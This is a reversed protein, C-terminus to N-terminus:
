GVLEAQVEEIVDEIWHSAIEYFKISEIAGQLLDRLVGDLEIEDLRNYFESEVIDVFTKEAETRDIKNEDIADRCSDKALENYEDWSENMWLNALWTEYNTWGNYAM